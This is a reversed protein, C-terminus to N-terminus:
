TFIQRRPVHLALGLQYSDHQSNLYAPLMQELLLLLAWKCQM